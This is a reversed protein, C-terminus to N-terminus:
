EIRGKNVTGYMIFAAIRDPISPEFDAQISISLLGKLNMEGLKQGKLMILYKGNGKFKIELEKGEWLVAYNMPSESKDENMGFLFNKYEAVFSGRNGEATKKFLACSVNRDSGAHGVHRQPLRLEYIQESTKLQALHNNFLVHGWSVQIEAVQEKDRYFSYDSSLFHKPRAYIM